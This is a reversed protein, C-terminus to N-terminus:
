EIYDRCRSKTFRGGIKERYVVTACANKGTRTKKM